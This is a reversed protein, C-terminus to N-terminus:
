QKPLSIRAIGGIQAREAQYYLMRLQYEVTV